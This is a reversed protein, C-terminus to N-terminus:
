QWVEIKQFPGRNVPPRKGQAVWMTLKDPFFITSGVTGANAINPDALIGQMTKPEVGSGSVLQRLRLDRARSYDETFHYPELCTYPPPSPFAGKLPAMERSQYHNTATLVGGAPLRIAGRHASLELVAAARPGCLMVSNGITAPTALIRAAVAEVTEGEELATRFRLAAPVGRLTRERSMASLQALAVGAGNMGTCVGVYGPWALSALSQRQGLAMIFLTQLNVLVDTFLPYDLNRGMLYAGSETRNEGVALASCKPGSNFLDDIVNLLLVTGLGLNAGAALATMEQRLPGPILPWFSRSLIQMLGYFPLAGVYFSVRALYSLMARRLLRIERALAAGHRRGREQPSGSLEIIQLSRAQDL